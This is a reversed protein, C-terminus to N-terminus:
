FEGLIKQHHQELPKANFGKRTLKRAFEHCFGHDTFVLKPDSEEVYQMLQEFDAHNSLHFIKDFYGKYDWGTAMASTVERKDFYELTSFLHRNVLSPPMILVQSDKLNHNMKIYDGTKVGHKKYIENMEFISEHVIPVVGAENSIRTLEQAKGLSYGALIVLKNKAHQSIWDTMQSVVEGYAPFSYEPMGFTTELVLIDSKLPKAGKFMMSDELRFDSTLVIEKGSDDFIQTQASGLIHGNEHLKISYSDFKKEKGFEIPNLKVDYKKKPYRVAVIDATQPTCYFDPDKALKVHDSHAHSLLVKKTTPKKHPDILLDKFLLGNCQELM